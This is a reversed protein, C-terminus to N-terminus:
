SSSVRQTASSRQIAIVCKRSVCVFCGQGQRDPQEMHSRTQWGCPWLRHPTQSVRRGPHCACPIDSPLFVPTCTNRPRSVEESLAWDTNIHHVEERPLLPEGSHNTSHRSLRSAPRRLMLGDHTEDISGIWKEPELDRNSRERQLREPRSTTLSELGQVNTITPAFSGQPAAM